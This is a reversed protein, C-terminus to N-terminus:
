KILRLSIGRAFMDTEEDYWTGELSIELTADVPNVNSGAARLELRYTGPKLHSTGTFPRVETELQLWTQHNEFGSPRHVNPNSRRPDFVYGLDCHHGMGRAIGELTVGANHSWLLNMPLFRGDEIFEGESGLRFLRRAFVQVREATTKGTNSIWRRFVYCATITGDEHRLYTGTSDPTGLKITISLRPRRWWLVFTERLLAVMVALFTALAGLFPGWKVFVPINDQNASLAASLASCRTLDIFM